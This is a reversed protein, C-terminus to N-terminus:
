WCVSCARIWSGWSVGRGGLLAQGARLWLPPRHGLRKRGGVANVCLRIDLQRWVGACLATPSTIRVRCRQLWFATAQIEVAAQAYEPCEHAPRFVNVVDVPQEIDRLTPYAREGLISHAKPHVPIIKFGKSQLYTAVFFSAKQRHTSLGVMALRRSRGLIRRVTAPNQYQAKLDPRLVSNLTLDCAFGSRSGM